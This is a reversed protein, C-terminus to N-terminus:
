LDRVVNANEALIMMQKAWGKASWNKRALRKGEGRKKLLIPLMRLRAHM